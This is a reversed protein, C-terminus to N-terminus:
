DLTWLEEKIAAAQAETIQAGEGWESQIYNVIAAVDADSLQGWSPMIPITHGDIEGARRFRGTILTTVIDDPERLAALKKLAPYWPEAGAGSEGHCTACHTKFVEEGRAVSVDAENATADLGVTGATVALGVLLLLRHMM